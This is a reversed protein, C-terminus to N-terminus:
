INNYVIVNLNKIVLTYQLIIDSVGITQQNQKERNQLTKHSAVIHKSM